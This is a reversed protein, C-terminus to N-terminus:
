AATQELHFVTALKTIELMQEIRPPPDRLILEGGRLHARKLAAVLVSLGSADMFTVRSLDVVLKGGPNSAQTEVLVQRLRPATAIDLDGRVPVVSVGVPRFLETVSM